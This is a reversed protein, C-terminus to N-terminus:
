SIGGELAILGPRHQNLARIADLAGEADSQSLAVGLGHVFSSWEGREKYLDEHNLVRAIPVVARTVNRATSFDGGKVRLIAASFCIVIDENDLTM